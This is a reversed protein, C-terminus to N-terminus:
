MLIKLVIKHLLGQVALPAHADEPFFIAFAGPTLGFWTDPVDLFFQVDKETDYDGEPTICAGLPKWGINDIGNVSFQIDIYKRHVELKANELGKGAASSATAYLQDGMIDRRGHTFGATEITKLFTFGASFHPHLACYRSYNSLRDLIM